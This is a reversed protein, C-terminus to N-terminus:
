PLGGNNYSTASASTSTRIRGRPPRSREFSGEISIGVDGNDHSSSTKYRSRRSLGAKGKEGEVGIGAWKFNRTEVNDMRIYDLKANGSSRNTLM